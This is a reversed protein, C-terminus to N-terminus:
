RLRDSCSQNATLHRRLVHLRPASGAPVLLGPLRSRTSILPYARSSASRDSISLWCHRVPGRPDRDFRSFNAAVEHHSNITRAEQCSRVTQGSRVPRGNTAAVLRCLKARGPGPFLRRLDPSRKSAPSSALQGASSGSLRRSHLLVVIVTVLRARACM